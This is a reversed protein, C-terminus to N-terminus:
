TTTTRGIPGTSCLVPHVGCQIAADEKQVISDRGVSYEGDGVIAERERQLGGVVEDSRGEPDVVARHTRKM